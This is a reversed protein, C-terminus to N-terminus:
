VSAQRLYISSVSDSYRNRRGVLPVTVGREQKLTWAATHNALQWKSFAIDACQDTRGFIGDVFRM